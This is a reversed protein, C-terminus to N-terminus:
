ALCWTQAYQLEASPENAFLQPLLSRLDCSIHVCMIVQLWYDWMKSPCVYDRWNSLRVIVCQGTQLYRLFHAAAILFDNNQFYMFGEIWEKVFGAVVQPCASYPDQTAKIWAEHADARVTGNPCHVHSVGTANDGSKYFIQLSECIMFQNLNISLKDRRPSHGIDIESSFMCDHSSAYMRLKGVLQVSDLRNTHSILM